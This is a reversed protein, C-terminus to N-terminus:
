AGDVIRVTFSATFSEDVEVVPLDPGGDDLAATPATM